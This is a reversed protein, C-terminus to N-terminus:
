FKFVLFTNLMLVLILKIKLVLAWIVHQVLFSM